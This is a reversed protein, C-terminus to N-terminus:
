ARFTSPDVRGAQLRLASLLHREAFADQVEEMTVIHAYQDDPDYRVLVLSPYGTKALVEPNGVIFTAHPLKVAPRNLTGVAGSTDIQGVAYRM